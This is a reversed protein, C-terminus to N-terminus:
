KKGSVQINGSTQNGKVAHGQADSFIPTLISIPVSGSAVNQPARLTVNAVIGSGIINQNLGFVIVNAKTPNATASKGAKTAAPGASASVFTWGSPVGLIFQLSAVSKSGPTFTVPIEITSSKCEVSGLSLTPASDAFAHTGFIALAAFVLSLKQRFM